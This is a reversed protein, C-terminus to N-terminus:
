VIKHDSFGKKTQKNLQNIIPTFFTPLGPNFWLFKSCREHRKFCVGQLRFFNIVNFVFFSLEIFCVVVFFYDKALRNM